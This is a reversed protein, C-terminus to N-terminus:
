WVINSMGATRKRAATGVSGPYVLESSMAPTGPKWDTIATRLGTLSDLVGLVRVEHGVLRLTRIVDYETRWEDIQQETLGTVSEPPVLTEHVVVLIKLFKM